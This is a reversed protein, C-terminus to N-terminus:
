VEGEPFNVLPTNEGIEQIRTEFGNNNYQVRSEERLLVQPFGDVPLPKVVKRNEISAVITGMYCITTLVSLIVRKDKIAGAESKRDVKTKPLSHVSFAIPQDVKM